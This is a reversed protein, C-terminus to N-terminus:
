VRTYFILCPNKKSTINKIARTPKEKAKEGVKDFVCFGLSNEIPQTPSM